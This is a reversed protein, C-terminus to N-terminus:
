ITSPPQVERCSSGKEKPNIGHEISLDHGESETANKKEGQGYM